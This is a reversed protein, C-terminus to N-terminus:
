DRNRFNAYVTYVLNHTVSWHNTECVFALDALEEGTLKKDVNTCRIHMWANCEQCQIWKPESQGGRFIGGCKVCQDQDSNSSDSKYSKSKKSAIKYTPKLKKLEQKARKEKEKEQKSRYSEELASLSTDSTLHNTPQKQQAKPASPLTLL